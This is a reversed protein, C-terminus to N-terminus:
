TIKHSAVPYLYVYLQSIRLLRQFLFYPNPATTEYVNKIKNIKALLRQAYVYM